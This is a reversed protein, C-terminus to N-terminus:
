VRIRTHRELLNDNVTSMVEIRNGGREDEQKDKGVM